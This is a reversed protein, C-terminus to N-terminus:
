DQGMIVSLARDERPIVCPRPGSSQQLPLQPPQFPGYSQSQQEAYPPPPNYIQIPTSSNNPWPQPSGHQPYPNYPDPPYGQSGYIPGPYSPAQPWQPQPWGYQQPQNYPDQLPGYQEQHYGQNRDRYRSRGMQAYRPDQGVAGQRAERRARLM